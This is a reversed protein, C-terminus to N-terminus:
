YLNPTNFTFSANPQYSTSRPRTSLRHCTTGTYRAHCLREGEVLHPTMPSCMIKANSLISRVQVAKHFAKADRRYNWANMLM